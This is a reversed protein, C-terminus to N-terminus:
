FFSGTYGDYLSAPSKADFRAITSTAHPVFYIYEGDFAAFHFGHASADVTNADFMTWSAPATFSQATNYRVVIGATGGNYPVFYVNRGDFAAGVYNQTGAGFTSTDFLEWGTAFPSTTAYHAVVGNTGPVLYVGHGDSVAGNYGVANADLTTLDVTTWAGATALSMTTDYRLVLGHFKSGNYYPAFYVFRGDFTSGFYGVAGANVTTADFSGLAGANFAASTDIRGVSGDYTGNNWPCTYIYPPAFAAGQFGSLAAAFAATDLFTWASTDALSLQTDFRAVISAPSGNYNPIFYVYHGDFAAGAYGAAKSNLTSIDFKQWSAADAFPAHTDYRVVLGQYGIALYPVLYIYRGDFAAGVFGRANADVGSLDFTSWKTTDGLDSYTPGDPVDAIQVDPAADTAPSLPDFSWRGCAAALALGVVGFRRM